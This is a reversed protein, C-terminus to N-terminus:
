RADETCSFLPRGVPGLDMRPEANQAQEEQKKLETKVLSGAIALIAVLTYPLDWYSLGLFAGGAAYGIISTQCMSALDHAWRLNPNNRISKILSRASFLTLIGIGLFLGLGVFGQEALMEFYISHADHVSEPEPAYKYFLPAIFVRCGGGFVPHDKALNWAFKWSNIRATASEDDQYHAITDMRDYWKSPMLAPTALLLLASVFIISLGKRSKLALFPAMVMVAILAGRSYSGLISVATLCMAGWLGLRIFRRSATLQLYRMLPLTIILAFALENNGEIFSGSPGGVRYQGGHLLTYIGGKVGFFGLSLCITWILIDLEWRKKIVAMAVFVMLLIKAFRDLEAIAGQPNLALITTLPVWLGLFLMFIVSPNWPIKIPLRHILLSVLTASAVILSFSFSYAFDWTLRQPNMFALWNWVLVGWYPNRLILPVSGFIIISLFIDRLPM